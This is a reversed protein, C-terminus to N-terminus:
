SSLGKIGEILMMLCELADQQIQGDNFNDYQGLRFKLADVDTSHSASHATDFLCKSLSDETSSNFPCNHSITRRIPFPINTDRFELLVSM